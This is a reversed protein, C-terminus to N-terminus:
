ARGVRSQRQKFLKRVDDIFPRDTSAWITDIKLRRFQQTLDHFRAEGQERFSKRVQRSSTDLLCLDGTEPDQVEILGANVLELERPDTIPCCIVDHKRSIVRLERDYGSDMFDSIIFVVARRKQVNSLFRLAATIDTGRQTEEAALVERVLRMVATRGKRPPISKEIRDSFLILGVNDQNKIASLALLCTIEAALESKTRSGSGFGQSGSIDVLFMVTMEREESFRKIFPHGMRATVNWDITRVDDGAVYERVEDFEIGQGRFVSHYAGSLHDDVLRNTIVRIKGVQKMLEKTDIAM